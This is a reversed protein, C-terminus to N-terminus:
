SDRRRLLLGRLFAAQGAHQLDDAIVSILRVGLTVPPDWREDVVRDLDDDTLRRLYGVSQEHVADLYGTLLEASDVRVADVEEPGHGYGTDATDLRLAFRDAWGHATWVQELGAVEAVHDDQVRTLHWVLWAVTNAEEDVRHALDEGSLGDVAGHVADRVREFADVLLDSSRM